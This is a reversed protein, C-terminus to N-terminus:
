KVNNKSRKLKVSGVGVGDEVKEFDSGLEKKYVDEMFEESEDDGFLRIYESDKTFDIPTMSEVGCM